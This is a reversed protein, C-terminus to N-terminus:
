RRSCTACGDSSRRASDRCVHRRPAPLGPRRVAAAGHVRRRIGAGACTTSGRSTAHDTAGDDNGSAGHRGAAHLYGYLTCSRTATSTAASSIAPTPSATPFAAHGRLQAAPAAVRDVGCRVVVVSGAVAEDQKTRRDVFHVAAARGERRGRDRAGARQHSPDAARHAPRRSDAHQRQSSRAWRAARCATGATTAPCAAQGRQGGADGQARPDGPHGALPRGPRDARRLAHQPPPGYFEGDPMQPWARARAASASPGSSTATSRRSSRTRSRGTPRSGTADRASTTQRSACADRRELAISRGGLVRIRDVGIATPAKM